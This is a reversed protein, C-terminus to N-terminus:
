SAIQLYKRYFSVLVICFNYDGHFIFLGTILLGKILRVKRIQKYAVDADVWSTRVLLDWDNYAPLEQLSRQRSVSRVTSGSESRVSMNGEVHIIGFGSERATFEFQVCAANAREVM